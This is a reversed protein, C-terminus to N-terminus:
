KSHDQIKKANDLFSEHLEDRDFLDIKDVQKTLRIFDNLTIKNKKRIGALDVQKDFADDNLM